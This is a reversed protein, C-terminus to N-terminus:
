VRGRKICKSPPYITPSGLNQRLYEKLHKISSSSENLKAQYHAQNQCRLELGGRM